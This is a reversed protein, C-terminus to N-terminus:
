AGVWRGFGWSSAAMSDPARVATTCDFFSDYGGVIVLGVVLCAARQVVGLSCGVGRYRDILGRFQESFNSGGM